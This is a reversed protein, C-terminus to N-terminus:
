VMCVPEGQYSLWLVQVAHKTKNVFTVGTSIRGHLSKRSKAEDNPQDAMVYYLSVETWCYGLGRRRM